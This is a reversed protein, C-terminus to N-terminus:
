QKKSKLMKFTKIIKKGNRPFIYFSSIFFYIFHQWKKLYSIKPDNMKYRHWHGKIYFSRLKFNKLYGSLADAMDMNALYMRKYDINESIGGGNRRYTSMIDPLRKIPGSSALIILFPHDRNLAFLGYRSMKELDLLKNRYVLSGTHFPTHELVDNITFLTKKIQRKFRYENGMITNEFVVDSLHTCASFNRNAELFEIQKQLKDSDTWYDDGECLAIYKGSASLMNYLSNFHWTPSGNILINNERSHLFLRILNSYKKAYEICIERTGDKSDDEGILIEFPFDTKQMLIGDLCEKIYDKHQYTIVLVSVLPNESVNNKYETVPVKQYKKIFEERM